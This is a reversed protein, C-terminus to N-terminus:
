IRGNSTSMQTHRVISIAFGDSSETKDGYEDMAKDPKFIVIAFRGGEFVRIRDDSNM